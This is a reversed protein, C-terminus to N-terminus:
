EADWLRWVKGTGADAMSWRILRGVEGMQQLSDMQEWSALLGSHPDFILSRLQSNFSDIDEIKGLILEKDKDCGARMDRIDLNQLQYAQNTLTKRSVLKLSQRIQLRKAEAIEAVCWARRFLDMSRDVAILQKGTNALFGMMDDFKNIESETCRGDPDRVNVPHLEDTFPDRDCPNTHCISAHQNVAFACIWYVNQMQGSETLMSRLLDPEHDLLQGAFHSSCEQLADAVIAGLRDRFRNGWNHTVMIEARRPGDRNHKSTAYACGEEATMPIIARRVVDRTRHDNPSYRWDELAPLDKLYFELLSQM